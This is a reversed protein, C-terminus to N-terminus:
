AITPCIETPRNTPQSTAAACIRAWIEIEGRLATPLQEIAAADLQVVLRKAGINSAHLSYFWDLYTPRAFCVRSLRSLVDPLSELNGRPALCVELTSFPNDALFEAVLSEARGGDRAIDVTHFVIRYAQFREAVPPLKHNSNGLDIECGHGKPVEIEANPEPWPDFETQFMEQSLSMLDCMQTLSLTPTELVYYPPHQQHKLGLLQAEQRFATGPLVALQFVQVQSCLDKEHLYDLGRRVSDHTDGPLGIILDVKVRIGADMMARIGREFAKMNNTRDMLLQTGRDISQLGIEVETFNAAKLLRATQQNIGEARLEGFYRFQRQPNCEALLKLFEDFDRRQNLTPDLLIVEEVGQEAAHRLNEVVRDLPVFQLADYSKPYYCFKCKFVCGRITELLLMKEEAADLIGDLYPSSIESLDTLPERRRPLTGIGNAPRIYLGDIPGINEGAALGKLLEVFTREGEGIAAYDFDGQAFVWANDWTIEPGGLLIKIRPDLRKVERAIWLTREINWLYCSFGILLPKRELLERVLSVDNALNATRTPLIEISFESELGARRAFLKLYGAALPVNGRIPELGVPPIPLQVLIVRNRQITSGGAATM